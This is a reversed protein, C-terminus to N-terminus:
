VIPATCERCDVRITREIQFLRRFPKSRIWDEPDPEALWFEVRIVSRISDEDADIPRDFDRVEYEYDGVGPVDRNWGKRWMFWEKSYPTFGLTIYRSTLYPVCSPRTLIDDVYVYLCVAYDPDEMERPLEGAIMLEGAFFDGTYVMPQLRLIGRVPGEFQHYRPACATLLGLLLIMRRM